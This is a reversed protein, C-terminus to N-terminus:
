GQGLRALAADAQARHEHHVKGAYGVVVDKVGRPLPLEPLEKLGLDVCSVPTFALDHDLARLDGILTAGTIREKALGGVNLSKAFGLVCSPAQGENVKRIRRNIHGALDRLLNYHVSLRKRGPQRSDLYYRGHLYVDFAEQMEAYAKLVAKVYRGRSTLARPPQFAPKPGAPDVWAFLRGPGIGLEFYFDHATEEDLLLAHLVNAKGLAAEGVAKLKEAQARFNEIEKDLDKRAGFFNEAMDVLTEQALSDAFSEMRSTDRAM